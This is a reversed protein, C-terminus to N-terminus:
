VGDCDLNRSLTARTFRALGNGRLAFSSSQHGQFHGPFDALPLDLIGTTRAMLPLLNAYASVRSPFDGLSLHLSELSNRFLSELADRAYSLSRPSLVTYVQQINSM